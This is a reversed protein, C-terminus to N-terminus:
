DATSGIVPKDTIRPMRRAADRRIDGTVAAVRRRPQGSIVEREVRLNSFGNFLDVGPEPVVAPVGIFRSMFALDGYTIHNLTLYISQWLNVHETPALIFGFLLVVAFVVM